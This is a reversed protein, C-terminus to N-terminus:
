VLSYVEYAVNLLNHMQLIGMYNDFTYGGLVDEGFMGNNTTTVEILTDEVQIEPNDNKLKKTDTYKIGGDNKFYYWTKKYYVLDYIAGMTFFVQLIKQIRNGYVVIKDIVKHIFDRKETDENIEYTSGEDIASIKKQLIHVKSAILELEKDIANMEDTLKNIRDMGIEYLKPNSDVFRVAVKYEQETEKQKDGRSAALRDADKVLMSIEDEFPKKKEALYEANIQEKYVVSVM